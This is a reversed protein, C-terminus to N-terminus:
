RRLEANASERWEIFRAVGDQFSVRPQFGLRKAKESDLRFGMVEGSRSPGHEISAGLRRSVEEAIEKVSPTEGTGLNIVEGELDDRELILKYGAVLDDVYMYERRQEGTGFVVLPEQALAREVFISIVAGDAGSKQRPGYINCPRVIIVNTGYTRWYAFCLRDAGAKSAAYPSHPRLDHAEDIMDAGTYGYVECSSAYILPCGQKRVAELVNFTGMINAELYSHPMAISEDVNIRAALHIVRDQGRVTKDVIEPDTISGWVISANDKLQQINREAAGSLTNLVTVRHGDRVLQDAIHSGQFGAGGTILIKMM